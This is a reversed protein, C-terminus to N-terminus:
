SDCADYMSMSFPRTCPRHWIYHWELRWVGKDVLSCCLESVITAGPSARKARKAPCKDAYQKILVADHRRKDSHPIDIDDQHNIAPSM